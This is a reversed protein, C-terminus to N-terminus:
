VVSYTYILFALTHFLFLYFSSHFRQIKTPYVNKTSKRFLSLLSNLNWGFYTKFLAQDHWNPFNWKSPLGCLTIGMTILSQVACRCVILAASHVFCCYQNVPTLFPSEWGSCLYVIGTSIGYDLLNVASHLLTRNVEKNLLVYFNLPKLGLFTM